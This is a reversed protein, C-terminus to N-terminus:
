KRLYNKVPKAVHTQANEHQCIIAEHRTAFEACKKKPLLKGPKLLEDFLCASRSGGFVTLCHINPEATSKDSQVPKAHSKKCNPKDYHLWKQYPIVIQHM